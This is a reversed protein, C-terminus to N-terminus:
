ISDKNSLRRCLYKEVFPSSNQSTFIPFPNTPSLCFFGFVSVPAGKAFSSHINFFIGTYLEVLLNQLPSNLKQFFQFQSLIHAHGNQSEM